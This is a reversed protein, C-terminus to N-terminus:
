KAKKLKKNTLSVFIEEFPKKQETIIQQQHELHLLPLFTYTKELKGAKPPLLQSFSLKKQKKKTTYYGIKHYVDDIVAMIDISRKPMDYKVPRIKALSRKKTEMAHQLADVLDQISVKRSRPQPNRPILKLKQQDRKRHGNHELEGYIDDDDYMEDDTQNMLMDLNPLDKDILHASKIKLLIAAALIVKGSVKLDHEQMEKIFKIYRKTLLTIDVDWPDMEERKVLDYIITKWTVDEEKLLLDFIKEDMSPSIFIKPKILTTHKHQREDLLLQIIYTTM